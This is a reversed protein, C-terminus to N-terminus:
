RVILGSCGFFIVVVCYDKKVIVLNVVVMFGDFFLYGFYVVRISFVILSFIFMLRLFMLWNLVFENKM